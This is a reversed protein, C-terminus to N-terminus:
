KKPEELGHSELVLQELAVMEEQLAFADEGKDKADDLLVSLEVMRDVAASVDATSSHQKGVASSAIEENEPLCLSGGDEGKCNNEPSEAFLRSDKTAVEAAEEEVDVEQDKGKKQKKNKNKKKKKQKKKDKEKEKEDEVVGGAEAGEEPLETERALEELTHAKVTEQPLANEETSEREQIVGPHSAIETAELLQEEVTDLKKMLTSLDLQEPEAVEWGDDGQSSSEGPDPNTESAAQDHQMAGYYHTFMHHDEKAEYLMMSAKKPQDEARIERGKKLQQVKKEFGRPIVNNIKVPGSSARSKTENACSSYDVGIASLDIDMPSRRCISGNGNNSRCRAWHKPTAMYLRDVSEKIRSSLQANEKRPPTKHRKPKEEIEKDGKGRRQQSRSKAVAVMREDLYEAVMQKGERKDRSLKARRQRPTALKDWYAAKRSPAAGKWMVSSLMEEEEGVDGGGAIADILNEEFVSRGTNRRRPTRTDRRGLQHGSKRSESGGRGKKASKLKKTEERREIEEWRQQSRRQRYDDDFVREDKPTLYYPVAANADDRFHSSASSQMQQTDSNNPQLLYKEEQILLMSKTPQLYSPQSAGSSEGHRAAKSHSREGNRSTAGNTKATARKGRGSVESPLPPPGRSSLCANTNNGTRQLKYVMEKAEKRIREDQLREKAMAKARAIDTLFKAIESTDDKLFKQLQRVSQSGHKDFREADYSFRHNRAVKKPTRYGRHTPNGDLNKLNPLLELVNQRYGGLRSVPNGSFTVDVLSDKLTVLERMGEFSQLRNHSLDLIELSLHDVRSVVHIHNHSLILTKLFPTEFRPIDQLENDHLDIHLLRELHSFTSHCYRLEAKSVELKAINRWPLASEDQEDGIFGMDIIASHHLRLSVLNDPHLVRGSGDVAQAVFSELQAYSIFKSSAVSMAWTGAPQQKLKKVSIVPPADEGSSQANEEEYSYQSGSEQESDREDSREGGSELGGETNNEEEKKKETVKKKTRKKKKMIMIGRNVSFWGSKKAKAAGDDKSVEEASSADEDTLRAKTRKEDADTDTDETNAKTTTTERGEGKRRPPHSLM